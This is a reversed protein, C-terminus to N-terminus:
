LSMREMSKGKEIINIVTGNLSEYKWNNVRPTNCELFLNQYTQNFIAFDHEVTIEKTDRHVVRATNSELNFCSKFLIPQSSTKLLKSSMKECPIESFTNDPDNFLSFLQFPVWSLPIRRMLFKMESVNELTFFWPILVAVVFALFAQRVLTSNRRNLVLM